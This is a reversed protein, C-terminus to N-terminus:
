GHLPIHHIHHVKTETIPILIRVVYWQCIAPSNKMGQPLVCWHYRQMPAERNITLVLISPLDCPMTPICLFKFSAIKSTLSQWIGRMQPLMSPSPMGPQLLSMDEIVENIQQLSHLLQWRDKGPKRIVFVPSNWPSNTPVINGFRLHQVMLVNLAELKEKNLPWQDMWILSDTKWNRPLTPHEVTAAILFGPAESPYESLGGKSDCCGM